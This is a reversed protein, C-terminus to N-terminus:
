AAAKMAEVKAAKDDDNLANFAEADEKSLRDVVREDKDGYVVAYTGRGVHVARLGPPNPDAEGDEIVEFFPNGKFKDLARGAPVKTPEGAIFGFGYQTTEAPTDPEPHYIVQAM